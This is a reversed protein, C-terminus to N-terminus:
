AVEPKASIAEQGRLPGRATDITRATAADRSGESGEEVENYDDDDEVVSSKSPQASLSSKPRENVIDLVKKQLPTLARAKEEKRKHAPDDDYGVGYGVRIDAYVPIDDELDDAPFTYAPDPPPPPPPPPPTKDVYATSPRVIPWLGFQKIMVQFEPEAMDCSRRIYHLLPRLYPNSNPIYGEYPHLTPLFGALYRLVSEVLGKGLGLGLELQKKVHHVIGVTIEDEDKQRYVMDCMEAYFAAVGTLMRSEAEAQKRRLEELHKERIRHRGRAFPTVSGRRSHPVTTPRGNTKKLREMIADGAATLLQSDDRSAARQRNRSEMRSSMRSHKESRAQAFQGHWVLVPGYESRIVEWENDDLAGFHRVGESREPMLPAPQEIAFASRSSALSPASAEMRLPPPREDLYVRSASGTPSAREENGRETSRAPSASGARSAARAPTADFNSFREERRSSVSSVPRLSKQSFVSSPRPPLMSSPMTTLNQAQFRADGPGPTASWSRSYSGALRSPGRNLLGNPDDFGIGGVHNKSHARRVDAVRMENIPFRALQKSESRSQPLVRTIMAQPTAAFSSEVMATMDLGAMSDSASPPRSGAASPPVDLPTANEAPTAQPVSKRSSMSVQGRSGRAVTSHPTSTRSARLKAPAPTSTAAKKSQRSATSAAASPEDVLMAQSSEEYPEESTQEKEDESSSEPDRPRLHRPIEAETNRSLTPAKPEVTPVHSPQYPSGVKSWVGRKQKKMGKAAQGILNMTALKGYGPINDAAGVLLPEFPNHRAESTRDIRGPGSPTPKFFAAFGPDKKYQKVWVSRQKVEKVLANARREKDTRYQGAGSAGSAAGKGLMIEDGTKNKTGIVVKTEYTRDQSSQVFVYM